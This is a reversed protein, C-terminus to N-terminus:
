DERHKKMGNTDKEQTEFKGDVWLPVGQTETAMRRVEEQKLLPKRRHRPVSTGHLYTRGVQSHKETEENGINSTELISLGNHFGFNKGNKDLVM